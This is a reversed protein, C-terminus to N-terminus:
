NLKLSLGARIVTQDVDFDTSIGGTENLKRGLGYHLVEVRGLLSSSLQMEVGGGVVYGRLRHTESISEGTTLDVARATVSGWGFGGTGYVLFNGTTVGLRARLSGVHKMETSLRIAPDPNFGGESRSLDIDAELGAVVQGFQFNYGAHAGGFFGSSRWSFKDTADSVGVDGFGGGGHVGLYLGQWMPQRSQATVPNALSIASAAIAAVFILKRM